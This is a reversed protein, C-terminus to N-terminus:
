LAKWLHLTEPRYGLREYLDLARRNGAFVNLTIAEYGLGRAWHEAEEMLRRGLGVGQVAPDLAVVEVHAHPRGTFYDTRTSVFLVGVARGDAGDALLVLADPSSGTLAQHLIVHDARAIDAPTRWAPVPFAALQESLRHIAPEDAPEAIRLTFAPTDPDRTM